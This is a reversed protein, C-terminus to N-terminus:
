QPGTLGLSVEITVHHLSQSLRTPESELSLDGASDSAGTIKRIMRGAPRCSRLGRASSRAQGAPGAPGRGLRVTLSESRNGAPHEEFTGKLSCVSM